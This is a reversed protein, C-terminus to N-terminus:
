RIGRREALHDIGFCHGCHREVTAAKPLQRLERGAHAINVAALVGRRATCGNASRDDVDIHVSKRGGPRSPIEVSGIYRLKLGAAGDNLWVDVSQLLKLDLTAIHGGLISM